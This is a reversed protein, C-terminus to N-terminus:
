SAVQVSPLGLALEIDGMAFHRHECRRLVEEELEDAIRTTM